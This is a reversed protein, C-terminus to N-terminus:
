FGEFDANNNSIDFLTDFFEEPVADDHPDDEDIENDSDSESNEEFLADDETGDLNNSISCKKFSKIIIDKNISDWADKVLSTINNVYALYGVGYVLYGVGCTFTQFHREGKVRSIHYFSM